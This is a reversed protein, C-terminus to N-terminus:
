DETGSCDVCIDAPDHYNAGYVFCDFDERKPMPHHEAFQKGQAKKAEEVEENFIDRNTRGCCCCSAEREPNLIDRM